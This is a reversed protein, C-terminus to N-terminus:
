AVFRGRFLPVGIHRADFHYWAANDLGVHPSGAIWKVRGISVIEKCHILLPAAQLTHAWDADFLLWTPKMRMFHVILPHLLERTWPPNTVIVDTGILNKRSLMLADMVRSKVVPGSRKRTAPKVIERIDSAWTCEFGQSVLADVMKGEGCCPEAFTRYAMLYPLLPWVAEPPTAYDDMPRRAFDSRKGM